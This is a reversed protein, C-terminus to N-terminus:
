LCYRKKISCDSSLNMNFGEVRIHKLFTQESGMVNMKETRHVCLESRIASSLLDISSQRKWTTVKSTTTLSRFACKIAKYCRVVDNINLSFRSMTSSSSNQKETAQQANINIHLFLAM